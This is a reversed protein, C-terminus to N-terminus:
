RDPEKEKGSSLKPQKKGEILKKADEASEAKVAGNHIVIEAYGEDAEAMAVADYDSVISAELQQHIRLLSHRMFDHDPLPLWGAKHLDRIARLADAVLRAAFAPDSKAAIRRRKLYQDRQYCKVCM